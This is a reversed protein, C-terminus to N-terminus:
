YFKFKNRTRRKKKRWLNVETGGSFPRVGYIKGRKLFFFAREERFRWLVHKLQVYDIIHIKELNQLTLFSKITRQFRVLNKLDCNTGEFTMM